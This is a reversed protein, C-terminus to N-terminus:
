FCRLVRASALGRPPPSSGHRGLGRPRTFALRAMQVRPLVWQKKPGDQLPLEAQVVWPEKYGDGGNLSARLAGAACAEAPLLRKKQDSPLKFAMQEGLPAGAQM